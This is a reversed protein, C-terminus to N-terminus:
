HDPSWRSRCRRVCEKGVSARGIEQASESELGLCRLLQGTGGPSEGLALLLHVSGVYSHGMQRALSACRRILNGTQVSYRM